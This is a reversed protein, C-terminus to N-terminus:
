GESDRPVSPPIFQAASTEM